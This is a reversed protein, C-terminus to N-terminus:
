QILIKRTIVQGNEPELVFLYLGPNFNKVDIEAQFSSSGVAFQQNYVLQGSSNFSKLVLKGITNKTQLQVSLRNSTPNPFFIVEGPSIALSNVETGIDQIALNDIIWGWGHSYPDSFLRFRILITDGPNFNGNASLEFERKVFLDKTPVSTSNNGSMSKNFLDVWAKQSNSDYGDILPKWNTSGDKSGEVIMYDYFNGDGFKTGADGPEVLVIEDYRIKGGTKLIIPYRLMTTFNFNVNDTDPSLYPHASNLAPSDFGAPTTINFDSGIFDRTETNFNNTYKEVPKQIGEIFFYNYGSLPSRGTNSQSSADVALVRYSIKDGDKLSGAPFVLNGSYIDNSDNQLSIENIVGGNVFYEVKVTKIGLNDTANAIIKASLNTSLMFKIPESTVVPAVNDVGIKFSFYRTPANSPFVFRRNKIDTASFFYDVEGNQSISLKASFNATTDTAKLLVSDAKTFKNRSYVLFVKSSDLDFDSKIVANFDFPASVYEIDKLPNHKIFISKWGIEYMMSLTYIGPDHVAEGKSAFPTMLSNPDGFPYSNEDLHYMSSGSDWTSPAYLRPLVNETQKINFELWGSTFALNLTISPNKYISTNILKKGSKDTVFQDFIGPLLDNGYSYGGKANASYFLGTFGLGHALEHLVTSVFDYQQPPTKGDIGFYWNSFDKNFDATLDYQDVGNVEEGLMKEVVAVPYYCNWKQTSNFNKYYNTPGCSGLVGTALSSWNAQMRIPVPSYIMNNWIDVAYQFAQQAENSFGVYTVEISAKQTTASKLREYYERPPGIYSPHSQNSGYCIPLPLKIGEKKWSNQGFGAFVSMIFLILLLRGRM